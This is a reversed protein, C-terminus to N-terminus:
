SIKVSVRQIIDAVADGRDAANSLHRYVERYKLTKIVDQTEFLEALGERYRHEIFNEAKKAKTALEHSELPKKEMKEIAEEILKSMNSLAEIMKVLYNNPEIKFLRVEEVTSKAYDIMDDVAQSMAFIDERDIPTIFASNLETVLHKRLEDAERELTDVREGNEPTTDQIFEYLAGMGECTKRAHAVMMGFFDRKKPFFLERIGM